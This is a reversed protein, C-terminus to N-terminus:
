AAAVDAATPQSRQLRGDVFSESGLLLTLQNRGYIPHCNTILRLVPKFVLHLGNERVQMRKTADTPLPVGAFVSELFNCTLLHLWQEAFVM